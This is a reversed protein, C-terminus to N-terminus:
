LGVEVTNYLGVELMTNLYVKYPDERPKSAGPALDAM